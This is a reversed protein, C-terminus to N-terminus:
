SLTASRCVPLCDPGAPRSENYSSVTKHVDILSTMGPIGVRISFTDGVAWDTMVGTFTIELHLNGASPSLRCAATLPGFFDCAFETGDATPRLTSCLDNRCLTLELNPADAATASLEATFRVGGTCQAPPCNPLNRTQPQGIDGGPDCGVGGAALLWVIFCPIIPRRRM